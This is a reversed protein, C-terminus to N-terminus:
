VTLQKEIGKSVILEMALEIKCEVVLVHCLGSLITHETLIQQIAVLMSGVSESHGTHILKEDHGHSLYTPYSPVSVCEVRLRPPEFDLCSSLSELWPWVASPPALSSPDPYSPVWVSISPGFEPEPLGRQPCGGKLTVGWLGEM